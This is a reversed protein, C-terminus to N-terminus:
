LPNVTIQKLVFKTLEAKDTYNLFKIQFLLNPNKSRSDYTGEISNGAEITLNVDNESSNNVIKNNDVWVVNSWHISMKETTTNTAQIFIFQAHIGNHLDHIDEVKYSIDVGNVQEIITWESVNFDTFEKSDKQSFANISLVVTFIIALKLVKM